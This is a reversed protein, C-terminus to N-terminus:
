PAKSTFQKAAALARQADANKGAKQLMQAYDTLRAASPAKNVPDDAGRRIFSPAISNGVMTGVDNSFDALAGFAQPAARIVGAGLSVAKSGKGDGGGTLLDQGVAIPGTVPNLFQGLTGLAEAGQQWLSKPQEPPQAGAGGGQPAAPPSAPRQAPAPAAKAQSVPPPPATGQSAPQGGNLLDQPTLLGNPNAM